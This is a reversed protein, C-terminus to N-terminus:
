SKAIYLGKAWPGYILITQMISTWLFLLIITPGFQGVFDVESIYFHLSVFQAAIFHKLRGCTSIFIDCGNAVENRSAFM